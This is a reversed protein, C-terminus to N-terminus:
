IKKPILVPEILVLGSVLEPRSAAVQMITAGGMSHGGLIIPKGKREVFNEVSRILDDRYIAWDYM